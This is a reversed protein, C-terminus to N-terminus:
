PEEPRFVRLVLANGIVSVSSFAMALAALMPDVLGAAALPILAANYAFAWALGYGIRRRVARGLRIADPIREVRGGVLVMDASEMAIDTGTGMAIGLDASALAPADNIGDGVMAVPGFERRWRAIHAAKEEPLVDSVVEGIGLREGMSKAIPAHDGSLMATRLGLAHLRAVVAAAEPRERDRFTLLGLVRRGAATSESVLAIVDGSAKAAAIAPHTSEDSARPRGVTVRRPGVSATVGAGPLNIFGTAPEVALGRSRAAGVIARGIPHESGSEVAAALALLSEEREGPDFAQVTVLTPTGTTLTGTKDFVVMRVARAAELARANGLLIGLRAGVGSGVMVATPTALGLACPCSIVLVSIMAELGALWSGRVGWWWALAALAILIVIPVFVAAVRDALRQAASKEAQARAVLAAIRALLSDAGVRDARCRLLGSINLAGALVPDGPAIPTPRSEGTVASLDMESSGGIATADVPARGGPRLVVVDGVRVDAAPVDLEIGDREITARPPSLNMLARVAAGASGRARAEMWRGAAVLALIVAASDFYAHPDGRLAMAISLGFASTTGLAILSDMSGRRHRIDRLTGRWFPVGLWVLLLATLVVQVGLSTPGPVFMGLVSVPLALAGAGLARRGWARREDASRDEPPAGPIFADAEFGADRVLACLETVPPPDPLSWTVRAQGLALNAAADAVGPRSRLAQEVSAVCSGCHMGRISLTLEQM